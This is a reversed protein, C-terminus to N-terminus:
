AADEKIDLGLRRAEELLLQTRIRENKEKRQHVRTLALTCGIGAIVAVIGLGTSVWQGVTALGAIGSFTSAAATTKPSEIVSQATHQLENLWTTM